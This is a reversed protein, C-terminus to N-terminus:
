PLDAPRVIEHLYCTADGAVDLFRRTFAIAAERDPVEFLAYGGV